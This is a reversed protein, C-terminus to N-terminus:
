CESETLNRILEELKSVLKNKKGDFVSQFQNIEEKINLLELLIKQENEYKVRFKSLPCCLWGQRM